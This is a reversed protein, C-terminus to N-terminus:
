TTQERLGGDWPGPRRLFSDIDVNTVTSRFGKTLGAMLGLVCKSTSPAKANGGYAITDGVKKM